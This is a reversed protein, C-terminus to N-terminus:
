GGGALSIENESNPEDNGYSEAKTLTFFVTTGHNLTSQVWVEGQHLEVVKKVVALGIGTGSIHSNLKKFITFIKTQYKEEIGIGDDKVSFLWFDSKEQVGISINVSNDSKFKISNSILNQFLQIMLTDNGYIIPLNECHLQVNNDQMSVSLNQRVVQVVQNLDIECRQEFRREVRSYDLLANILRKMREAGDVSYGIFDRADQDLKDKYRHELLQLYSSIMRLPEQLDHSAIYAFNKLEDNSRQLQKQYRVSTREAIKKATIDRSSSTLAMVDGDITIATSTTNLWIYAGNKKRFRYDSEAVASADTPNSLLTRFLEKPPTTPVDDPHLYYELPHMRLEDPTYGTLTYASPSVYLYNGNPEHLCVMDTMNDALLKLYREKEELELRAQIKAREAKQEQTIDRGIIFYIKQYTDPTIRWDVVQNSTLSAEFRTFQENDDGLQLHKEVGSRDNAHIFSLFPQGTLKQNKARLSEAFAPNIDRVIGNSDLVAMLDGSQKFFRKFVKFEEQAKVQQDVDQFSGYLRTCTDGDFHARGIARVWRENNRATVIQLVVDFSEGKEIAKKIVRKITGRSDGPKYFGIGTTLDPVFDAAVEHIGRTTETWYVIDQVLDVEWGGVQSVTNTQELLDKTRNLEVEKEKLITVDVHAGLMRTPTGKENRIAMGRCRIWVTANNKHRYRVLQDYPHVPDALHKTLNETATKLDEPFIINQWADARHSMDAPEYGLTTWFEANMWQHEPNELDWYWLGDLSSKQIFDFIRQKTKVLEYLEEKLYHSEPEEHHQFTPLKSGIDVDRYIDQTSGLIWMPKGQKNRKFVKEQSLLWRYNEQKTKIRYTFETTQGDELAMLNPLNKHQYRHFDEPHMLTSLLQDGMTAIEDPSYGLLNGIEQNVYINKNADIDFIYILNPTNSLIQNLFDPSEVM